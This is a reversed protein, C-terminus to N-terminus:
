ESVIEVKTTRVIGRMEGKEVSEVRLIADTSASAGRSGVITGKSGNGSGHGHGHGHRNGSGSKEDGVVEVNVNYPGLAKLEMHMNEVEDLTEFGNLGGGRGSLSSMNRRGAYGDRGGSTSGSFHRKYGHSQGYRSQRRANPNSVNNATLSKATELLWRFAPKISPLTAAIIGVNMEIIQWGYYWSRPGTSDFDDFFHAIMPTKIIAAGCAIYGLSLIFILSAKTRKNVQLTWILPVPVLALAIDTVANTISNFLAFSRYTNVTLCRAKGQGMPPPRLSYDWNAAIPTCGFILTFFGFLMLCVIFVIMGWLVHRYRTQRTLPLLFFAISLKVFFISIPTLVSGIYSFKLLPQYNELPIAFIHKGMGLLIVHLFICCAATSCAMAIVIFYDDLRFVRLLFIRIYIRTLVTALAVALLSLTVARLENQISFAYYEPDTPLAFAPPDQRPLVAM